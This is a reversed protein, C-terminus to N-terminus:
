WKGAFHETLIAIFRELSGLIARHIMVPREFDANLEKSATANAGAPTPPGAGAAPAPAPPAAAAPASASAAAAEGDEIKGATNTASNKARFHLGFRQPLQFDLQITACQFQRKMADSITIDIKPGYFAGDGPNLEWKGPVFKDLAAQLKREALDWTEIEGLYKEPRTSLELKFQFGFKGYVSNLFHFASTVEDEIQSIMCFIHADDQVFRRVRTLGSLAGSAENRHIVGFEAFRLPLERYSRERAGFMLCHGPCNMPKLAFLEKDVGLTFMDDKYNAWHGSTEWLKSHYMNPSIVEQFGRTRYENRMFETLTNYIRTGHPLWFCSGPSLEHFM